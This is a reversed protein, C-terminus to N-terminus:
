AVGARSPHGACIDCRCRVLQGAHIGPSSTADGRHRGGELRSGRKRGISHASNQSTRMVSSASRETHMQQVCIRTEGNTEVPASRRNEEVIQARTGGDLWLSAQAGAWSCPMQGRRRGLTARDTETREVEVCGDIVV